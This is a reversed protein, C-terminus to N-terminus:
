QSGKERMLVLTVGNTWGFGVVNTKYGASVQATTSRTIVDYKERITQDRKFNDYVDSVFEQAIRDADENFGYHRLGEVPILQLPAWGYPLDWQMGTIRDSMAIGGAHEFHSLNRAVARAQEASALGAWLPYFTTAYYYNSQRDHLFDYDFYMGAQANWFYKNVAEKRAEALQKWKASEEARGLMEAMHALDQEAKYLLSNLCVPAYHHTSGSYPGFRFSIDFGSERMARDGKYYDRALSVTKADSCHRPAGATDQAACVELQFQPGFQPSKGGNGSGIYSDAESGPMALLSSTVEAYYTPDDGMEPVPGEGLDFYRSLGTNGALKPDRTWLQYDRVAYDYARALWKQDALSKPQKTAAQYFDMIMSTLFPPQSRTFYYTRNANLIAGYHEIEFFFNEIMDGALELMGDQVLGRIIFYSDWGYMENFRGGPVVYPNPLYLLGPPQVESVKVDGMKQIPRPLKVVRNGCKSELAQVAPPTPIDAPVYLVPKTTLKTDVLSACDTQSRRLTTWASHIYDTIEKVQSTTLPHPPATSPTVAPQAAAWSAFLCVVRLVRACHQSTRRIGPKRNLRFDGVRAKRSPM